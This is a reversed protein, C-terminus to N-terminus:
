SGLGSKLRGGAVGYSSPPRPGKRRPTSSDIAGSATAGMIAGAIFVPLCNWWGNLLMDIMRISICIMLAGVLITDMSGLYASSRRWCVFVPLTMFMMALLTGAFGAMGTRIVWWADLGPEGTDWGFSGAGPIRSFHGWGVWFREGISGIVFDEELFRGELSRARDADYQAAFEVLAENPFLDMMRLSPYICAFMALMLGVTSIMRPSFMRTVMAMTAGYTTGAVNFTLLLGAFLLLTVRKFGFWAQAMRARRLAVALILPIVMFTALALGNDMFVVPQTFGWRFQPRIAVGYIYDSFQFVRFPIAGIVEIVILGVYVIGAAVLLRALIRLDEMSRFMTRGVLYPVVLTLFDAITQGFLWRISLGDQIAGDNVIPNQNAAMTAISLVFIPILLLELGRGPAASWFAERHWILIGSLIALYTVREKDIIPLGPIALLVGEPLFMSGAIVGLAIGKARSHRATLYLALPFFLLYAILARPAFDM